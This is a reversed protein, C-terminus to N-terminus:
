SGIALIINLWLKIWPSTKDDSFMQLQQFVANFRWNYLSCLGVSLDAFFNLFYISVAFACVDALLRCVGRSAQVDDPPRYGVIRQVFSLWCYIRRKISANPLRGPGDVIGIFWNEFFVNRSASVVDASRSCCLMDRYVTALNPLLLFPFYLFIDCAVHHVYRTPLNNKHLLVCQILNNDPADNDCFRRDCASVRPLHWTFRCLLTFEIEAAAISCTVRLQVVPTCARVCTYRVSQQILQWEFRIVCM